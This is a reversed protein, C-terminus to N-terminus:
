RVDHQQRTSGHYVRTLHVCCLTQPSVRMSTCVHMHVAVHARQACKKRLCVCRYPTYGMFSRAFNDMNAELTGQKKVPTAAATATAQLTTM